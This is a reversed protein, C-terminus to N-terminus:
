VSASSCRISLLGSYIVVVCSLTPFVTLTSLSQSPIFDVSSGPRESVEKLEELTTQDM